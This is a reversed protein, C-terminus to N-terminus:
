TAGQASAFATDAEAASRFYELVREGFGTPSWSTPQVMDGLSSATLAAPDRRGAAYKGAIRPAKNAARKLADGVVDNEKVLGHRELTGLLAPLVPGLTPRVSAIYDARWARSDPTGPLTFTPAEYVAGVIGSADRSPTRTVLLHLLSVHPAEMDAIAAIILQEEDIRAQDDALGCALARGLARVKADYATRTAASIASGGLLRTCEDQAIVEAM